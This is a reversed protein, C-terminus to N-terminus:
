SRGIQRTATDLFQKVMTSHDDTRWAISMEARPAGEAITIYAVDRAHLNETSKPVISIGLGAAVLGVVTQIEKVDQRVIPSFGANRCKSLIDDYWSPWVEREV